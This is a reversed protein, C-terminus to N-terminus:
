AVWQDLMPFLLLTPPASSPTSPAAPYPPLQEAPSAQGPWGPRPSRLLYPAREPSSSIREGRVGGAVAAATNQHVAILSASLLKEFAPPAASAFGQPLKTSEVQFRLGVSVASLPQGTLHRAPVWGRNLAWSHLSPSDRHSYLQDQRCFNQKQQSLEIWNVPTKLFIRFWFNWAAFLRFILNSELTPTWYLEYPM